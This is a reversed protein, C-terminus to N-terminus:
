TKHYFIVTTLAAAGALAQFITLWSLTMGFLGAVIVGILLVRQVLYSNASAFATAILASGVIGNYIASDHVITAVLHREQALSELKEFSQMGWGSLVRSMILPVSWPFLEGLMIALHLVGVLCVVIKPITWTM